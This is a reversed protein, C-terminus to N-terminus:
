KTLYPLHACEVSLNNRGTIGPNSESDINPLSCKTSDSDSYFRRRDFGLVASSGLIRSVICRGVGLIQNMTCMELGLGFVLGDELFDEFKSDSEYELHSDHGRPRSSIELIKKITM